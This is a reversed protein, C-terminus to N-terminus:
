RNRRKSRTYKKKRLTLIGGTNLATQPSLPGGFPLSLTLSDEPHHVFTQPYDVGMKECLQYFKEKHILENMLESGIYPAIVNEPLRDKNESCLQVYSDGCGILLVTTQAHAEAFETVLRLFTEQEDAKENATYRIIKSNHCPGTPYKGYGYSVIGYAQHFARAVSYVNIDGAFLLPIFKTEM